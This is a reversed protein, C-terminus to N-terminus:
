FGQEQAVTHGCQPQLLLQFGHANGHVLSVGEIHIQGASHAAAGATHGKTQLQYVAIGHPTEKGLGGARGTHHQTHGGAQM